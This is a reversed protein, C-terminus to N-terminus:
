RTEAAGFRPHMGLKGLVHFGAICVQGRDNIMYGEKEILADKNAAGGLKGLVHFGAICVQFGAICVELV